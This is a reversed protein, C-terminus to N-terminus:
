IKSLLEIVRHFMFTDVGKDVGKNAIRMTRFGAIPSWTLSLDAKEAFGKFKKYLLKLIISDLCDIVLTNIM